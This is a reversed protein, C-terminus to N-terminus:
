KNGDWKGSAIWEARHENTIKIAHIKDKAWVKADMVDLANQGRYAPAQSRRWIHIGVTSLSYSDTELPECREVTGDKRMFVSFVNLGQNLESIGPDLPWEAMQGGTLDAVKQANAESSFVGVVSYDSYEGEEVVWVSKGM